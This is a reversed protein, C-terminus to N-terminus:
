VQGRQIAFQEFVVEVINPDGPTEPLTTSMNVFNNILDYSMVGPNANLSRMYYNEPMEVYWNAMRASLNIPNINGSQDGLMDWADRLREYKERATSLFDEMEDQLKQMEFAQIIELGGNLYPYTTNIFSTASAFGNVGQTSIGWGAGGPAGNLGGRAGVLLMGVVAFVTGWTGGILQGATTILWGVAFM